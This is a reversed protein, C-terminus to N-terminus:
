FYFIRGCFYFFCGFMFAGLEYRIVM